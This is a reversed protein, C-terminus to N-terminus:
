LDGQESTTSTKAPSPLAATSSQSDQGLRLSTPTGDLNSNASNLEDARQDALPGGELPHCSRPAIRPTSGSSAEFHRESLKLNDASETSQLVTAFLRSRIVDFQFVVFRASRGRWTSATACLEASPGVSHRSRRARHKRDPLIFSRHRAAIIERGSRSCQRFRRTTRYRLGDHRARRQRTKM